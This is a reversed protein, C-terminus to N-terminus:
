ERAEGGPNDVASIARYARAGLRILWTVFSGAAVLAFLVVAALSIPIFVKV